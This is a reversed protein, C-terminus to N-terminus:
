GSRGSSEQIVVGDALLGAVDSVGWETLAEVTHQGVRAPPPGLAATTRSFRPAPAPQAVGDVEVYSAREALHPHRASAELGLVPSVCGDTGDFRDQWEAQTREAFTRTFLERLAPWQSSDSRDPVQAPDLDLGRLLEAYFAPELAGVAVYEGDSTPYVDYWPVGTDLLNSGRRDTWWGAAAM